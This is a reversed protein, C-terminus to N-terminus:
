YYYQYEEYSDPYEIEKNPGYHYVTDGRKINYVREGGQHLNVEKNGWINFSINPLTKEKKEDEKDTTTEADVITDTTVEQPEKKEENTQDEKDVLIHYHDVNQHVSQKVVIQHAIEKRKEESGPIKEMPSEEQEPSERNSLNMTREEARNDRMRESYYSRYRPQYVSYRIPHRPKYSTQRHQYASQRISAAIGVMMVVLSGM